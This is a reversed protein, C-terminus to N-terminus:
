IKRKFFRIKNSEDQKDNYFFTTAAMYFRQNIIKKQKKISVPIEGVLIIANQDNKLNFKEIDKPLCKMDQLLMASRLAKSNIVANDNVYVALKSGPCVKNIFDVLQVIKQSRSKANPDM